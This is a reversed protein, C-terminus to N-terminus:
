RRQRIPIDTQERPTLARLNTSNRWTKYGNYTCIYIRGTRTIRAVTAARDALTTRRFTVHRITNTIFVHQGVQFRVTEANPTTAQQPPETTRTARDNDNTHETWLARLLTDEEELLARRALQLEELRRIISNVWEDYM